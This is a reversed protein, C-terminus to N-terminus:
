MHTTVYADLFFLHAGLFHINKQLTNNTEPLTYRIGRWFFDLKTTFYPRMLYKNWTEKM